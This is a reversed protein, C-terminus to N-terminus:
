MKFKQSIRDMGEKCEETLRKMGDKVTSSFNSVSSATKRSLDEANSKLTSVASSKVERAKNAAEAARVKLHEILVKIKDIIRKIAAFSKGKVETALIELKRVLNEGRNITEKMPSQEISLKEADANLWTLETAADDQLESDVVVKIGRREWRYRAEELAKAHERARKAEDEAWARCVLLLILNCTGRRFVLQVM